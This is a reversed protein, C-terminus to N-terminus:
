LAHRDQREGLHYLNRGLVSGSVIAENRPADRAPLTGSYLYGCGKPADKEEVGTKRVIRVQLGTEEWVERVVAKEVPEGPEVTGAPLQIGATPHKFVLLERGLAGTRVVFATVKELVM